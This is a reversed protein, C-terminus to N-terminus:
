FLSFLIYAFPAALLPSDIVDLIGGFGPILDSSDKVDADRKMMSELLDGVQGIAGIIVGFIVGQWWYLHQISPAFAAGVGGALLVGCVLGEWTKKPSLWPILKHKGLAMGGFFAGIDTSKVVVLIMMIVLTSGTLHGSRKVRLAVLFWALGGLYMMALVTGAMHHIAEQTQKGWARRLAAFLMVFAIVFALTSAAIPQFRKFQTMFAHVALAGSGLAVLIRYPKVREAAFLTALETTAPPLILLLLFLLGLGSIGDGFQHGFVEMGKTWQQSKSDVWLLAFVAGLMLPGLTLRYKLTRDM